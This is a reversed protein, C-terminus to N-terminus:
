TGTLPYSDSQRLYDIGDIHFTQWGFGFLPRAEIMDLAAHNTNYRDWVSLQDQVRSDAKAKLGPVVNLVVVVAVAGVLVAPVVANRTPRSVFMSILTGAVAGVWVSRTLTFIIGLGALAIVALCALRVWRATWTKIGVAAAVACMYLSLGDAVSEVF